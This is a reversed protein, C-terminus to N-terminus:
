TREKLKRPPVEGEATLEEYLSVLTRFDNTVGGTKLIRWFVANGEDDLFRPDKLCDALHKKQEERDIKPSRDEIIGDAILMRIQRKVQQITVGRQFRSTLINAIERETYRKDTILRLQAVGSRLELYPRYAEAGEIIKRKRPIRKKRKPFVFRESVFSNLLDAIDSEEMELEGAIDEVSEGRGLLRLVIQKKEPILSKQYQSYFDAYLALQRDDETIRRWLSILSDERIDGFVKLASAGGEQWVFYRFHDIREDEKLGMSDLIDAAVKQHGAFRRGMLEALPRTTQPSSDHIEPAPQGIGNEIGNM